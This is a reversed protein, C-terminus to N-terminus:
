KSTFPKETIIYISVCFVEAGERLKLLSKTGGWGGPILDETSQYGQYGGGGGSRFIQPYWIVTVGAVPLIAINRNCKHSSTM